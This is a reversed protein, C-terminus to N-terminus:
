FLAFFALVALVAINPIVSIASNAVHLENLVAYDRQNFVAAYCGGFDVLNEYCLGSVPVKDTDGVILHLNGATYKISYDQTGSQVKACASSGPEVICTVSSACNNGSTSPLTLQEQTIGVVGVLETCQDDSWLTLWGYNEGGSQAFAAVAFLSLIVLLVGRQM